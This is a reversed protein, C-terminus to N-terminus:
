SADREAETPGLLSDLPDSSNHIVTPKPEEVYPAGQRIHDLATELVDIVQAMKANPMSRATNIADRLPTRLAAAKAYECFTFDENKMYPLHDYNM